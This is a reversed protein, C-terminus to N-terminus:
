DDDDDEDTVRNRHISWVRAMEGPTLKGERDGDILGAIFEIEEPTLGSGSEDIDQVMEWHEAQTKTM